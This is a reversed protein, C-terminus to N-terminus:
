NIQRHTPFIATPIELRPENDNEKLHFVYCEASPGTYRELGYGLDVRKSTGEIIGQAQLHKLNKRFDAFGAKIATQNFAAKAVYVTNGERRAELIRPESQAMYSSEGNSFASRTVHLTDPDLARLVQSLMDMTADQETAERSRHELNNETQYAIAWQVIERPHMPVLGAEYAIEGAVMIAALARAWFRTSPPWGTDAYIADYAATLRAPVDKLVGPQYLAALFRDGALGMNAYYARQLKDGITPDILRDQVPVSFEMIRHAKAAYEKKMTQIVATPSGNSTLMLLTRWSALGRKLDGDRMLRRKERGANFTEIFERVTYKNEDALSLEDYTVPLNNLAGVVRWLANSTDKFNLDVFKNFFVSRCAALATSKGTAGFEDTLALVAGGEVESNFDMLVAAFAGLIIVAHAYTAPQFFVRAAKTWETLSASEPPMTSAALTKDSFRIHEKGRDSYAFNGYVFQERKNKFGFTSFIYEAPKGKVLQDKRLRHYDAFLNTDKVQIGARELLWEAKPGMVSAMTLMKEEWAQHPLKQMYVAYTADKEDDRAISKLFIPYLTIIIDPEKNGERKLMLAGDSRYYFPSPPPPVGALAQAIEPTFTVPEVALQLPSVVKGRHPCVSCRAPDLSEFQACTTPGTTEAIKRDLKTQTEAEDYPGFKEKSIEHFRQHGEPGAFSYVGANAFWFLESCVGGTEVFFQLQACAKEATRIANRSCNSPGSIGASANDAIRVTQRSQPLYVELSEVVGLNTQENRAEALRAFTALPYAQGSGRAMM